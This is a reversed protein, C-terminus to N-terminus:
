VLVLKKMTEDIRGGMLILSRVNAYDRVITAWLGNLSHIQLLSMGRQFIGIAVTNDIRRM